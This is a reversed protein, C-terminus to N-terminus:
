PTHSSSHSSAPPYPNRNEQRQAGSDPVQQPPSSHPSSSVLLRSLRQSEQWDRTEQWVRQRVQWVLQRQRQMALYRQGSDQESSVPPHQQMVELSKLEGCCVPCKKPKDMRRVCKSCVRYICTQCASMTNEVCEGYCIPCEPPADEQGRPSLSLSLGEGQVLDYNEPIGLPLGDAALVAFAIFLTVSATFVTSFHM